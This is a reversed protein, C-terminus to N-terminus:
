RISFTVAPAATETGAAHFEGSCGGRSPRNDQPCPPASANLGSSVASGHLWRTHGDCLLFNSGGAHRGAPAAFQTSDPDPPLRGGLYGTAYQNETRTSWDRQAYLRHDLGNASPSLNRGPTGGPELGERPDALNVLVGTVEFLMVSRAPANLAAQAAGPPPQHYGDDMDGPVAVLNINYGYSVVGDHPGAAAQGDAPCRLLGASRHYPRSQGAWGEGAWVREDGVVGLGSPFLEDNDAVYLTLAQGLERLSSICAAQGARDRARSLAPFLIASLVGIVAMVVLTEVLTFGRAGERRLFRM